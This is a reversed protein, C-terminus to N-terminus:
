YCAKYGGGEDKGKEEEEERQNSKTKPAFLRHCKPTGAAYSRM